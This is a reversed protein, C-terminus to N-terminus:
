PSSYFHRFLSAGSLASAENRYRAIDVILRLSTRAKDIFEFEVRGPRTGEPDEPAFQQIVKMVAAIGDGLVQEDKLSLVEVQARFDTEMANFVKTGDDHVCDEGFAYASGSTALELSGLAANVKSSLEPLERTAWTYYCGPYSSPASTPTATPAAPETAQITPTLVVGGIPLCGWLVMQGLLLWIVLQRKVV